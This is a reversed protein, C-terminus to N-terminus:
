GAIHISVLVFELRTNAKRIRGVALGYNPGSEAYEKVPLVQREEENWVSLLYDRAILASVM